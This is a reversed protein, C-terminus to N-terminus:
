VNKVLSNQLVLEKLANIWLPHDNLGEVLKLEEGGMEQFERQYETSIEYITELCDCVFSPSFVLLRKDGAKACDHLVDSAYPQLWPAKGLRSQFCVRYQDVSLNLETAISRATAHCQAKYCFQNTQCIQKCCDKTLCEGTRDAKRIQREPLGHFSFIIRDYSSLTYQRARACFAQIVGPHDYFDNIFVLKPFTEWQQVQKMVEEYVSGTTASAYQPFLPLIIIEDVNQGRLEELGETISPQQYRMGLSVVSDKGLVKQLEQQVKRGHFLLPSGGETWVKRYQEASQKYRFPVILGRVLIQRRWWTLDIVRKDTLFEILYRYVDKPQYSKPTGLNVLLVGRKMGEIKRSM